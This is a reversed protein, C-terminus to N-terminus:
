GPHLCAKSNKRLRGERIDDYFQTKERQYGLDQLWRLVEAANKTDSFQTTSFVPASDEASPLPHDVDNSDEYEDLSSTALSFAKQNAETPNELMRRRALEKVKILSIRDSGKSQSILNDLKQADNNM